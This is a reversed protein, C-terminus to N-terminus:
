KVGYMKIVGADTNSTCKFGVATIASTTNLYGQSFNNFSIDSNAVGQTVCMWHKMYTTSSPNYIHLMGCVSSTNDHDMEHFLNQWDTSQVLVNAVLYAVGGDAGGGTHKAGFYTSTITTNYSTGAQFQFNSGDSAPHINLFVFTYIPYTSDINSTFNIQATGSATETGLLTPIGGIDM